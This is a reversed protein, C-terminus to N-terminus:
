RSKLGAEFGVVLAYRLHEIVVEIQELNLPNGRSEESLNGLLQNTRKVFDDFERDDRKGLRLLSRREM